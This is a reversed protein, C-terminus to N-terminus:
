GLPLVAGTVLAARPSNLLVLPWAHAEASGDAVANVCNIRVGSALLERAREAVYDNVVLVPFVEGGTLSAVSAIAAGEIMLPVVHETLQHLSSTGDANSLAACDFLANVIRGIKRAAAAIQAPDRLDTETFSALGSQKPKEVDLAHVEAGLDVLIKTLAAGIESAAGAVIVRRGAYGLVDNTM